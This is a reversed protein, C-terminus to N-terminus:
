GPRYQDVAPAGGGPQESPRMRRADDIAEQRRGDIEPLPSPDGQRYRYNREIVDGRNLLGAADPHNPDYLLPTVFIVLDSKSNRFNTSRFLRGLIPLDGLLPVKDVAESAQSQVLGSLAVTEGPRLTLESTTRRTMFAPYGQVTLSPDIQSIETGLATTIVNEGDVAPKVDLRIGYEKYTVTQSGFAGAIPIPVEGGALFSATGGSRTNLEPAALLYAEGNSVALNIRSFISTAIGLFVGGAAGNVSGPVSDYRNGSTIPAITGYRGSHVANGAASAQPGNIQQDWAIGINELGTKTIEMIHVKFMVAKKLPGGDETQILNTAMRYREIVAKADDKREPHVFGRVIISGGRQTIELKRVFPALTIRIQEAADGLDQETVRVRTNLVLGGQNWILLSTVGPKEALLVLQRDVVTSSILSGDGIAVRKVTGPVDIVHVEGKFLVIEQQTRVTQGAPAQISAPAGSSQVGPATDEVDGPNAAAAHNCAALMLAIGTLVAFDSMQPGAARKKQIFM